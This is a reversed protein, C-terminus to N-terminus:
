EGLLEAPTMKFDDAFEATARGKLQGLKVKNTQQYASYPILVAVNERKKGYSIVIEEGNQVQKVIDSFHAKLEGVQMTKM